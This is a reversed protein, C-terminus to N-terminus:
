CASVVRGQHQQIEAGGGRGQRCVVARREARSDPHKSTTKALNRVAVFKAVSPARKTVEKHNQDSEAFRRSLKGNIETGSKYGSKCRYERQESKTRCENRPTRESNTTKKLPESFSPYM